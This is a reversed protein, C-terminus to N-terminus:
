YCPILYVSDLSIFFIISNIVMVTKGLLHDETLDKMLSDLKMKFIWCVVDPRDEANLKREKCYSTIEPLKPNCTFTIFLNPFGYMKCIAMADYYSNLMHRPGGTFSQPIRISKGQESMNTNGAERAAKVTDYNKCRLNSQNFKIYALRNSEITTYGDVLFQQFL